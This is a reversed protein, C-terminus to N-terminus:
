SHSILLLMKEDLIDDSLHNMDKLLSVSTAYRRAIDWLREGKEGYYVVLSRGDQTPLPHEADLSIQDVVDYAKRAFTVISYRIDTKLDIGDTGVSWSMGLICLQAECRMQGELHHLPNSLTFSLSKDISRHHDAERLFLSTDLVGEIVLMKERGTIKQVVPTGIAQIVELGETEMSIHHTVTETNEIRECVEEPQLTTRSIEIPYCNSYVDILLNHSQNEFLEGETQLTVSVSILRNQGNEDGEVDARISQISISAEMEGREENQRLDLVQTFPVATSTSEVQDPAKEATYLVFLNLVGKVIAKGPLLKIGKVCVSGEAKLIDQIANHVEIEGHVKTTDSPHELITYISAPSFLTEVGECDVAEITQMQQQDKVKIAISVMAKLSIKRPNLLRCTTGAARVVTQVWPERGQEKIPLSEQFPINESLSKMSGEEGQYLVCIRCIGELELRDGEVSKKIIVPEAFCQIIKEAAPYYDPILLDSECKEELFNEYLTVTAAVMSHNQNCEM